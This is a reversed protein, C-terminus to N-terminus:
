SQGGNNNALGKKVWELSKNVKDQMASYEKLPIYVMEYEGTVTNHRVYINKAVRKVIEIEGRKYVREHEKVLNSIISEAREEKNKNYSTKAAVVVEKKASKVVITAGVTFNIHTINAAKKVKKEGPFTDLFCVYDALMINATLLIVAIMAKRM